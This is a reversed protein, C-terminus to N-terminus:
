LTNSLIQATNFGNLHLLLMDLTDFLEESNPLPRSIQLPPFDQVLLQKVANLTQLFSKKCEESLPNM